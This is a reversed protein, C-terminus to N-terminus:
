DGLLIRKALASQYAQMGSFQQYLLEREREELAAFKDTQIYKALSVLKKTLAELETVMRDVCTTEKAQTTATKIKDVTSM